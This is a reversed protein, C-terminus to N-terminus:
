VESTNPQPVLPENTHKQTKGLMILGMYMLLQCFHNELRHLMSHCDALLDCKEGLELHIIRLNTTILSKFVQM